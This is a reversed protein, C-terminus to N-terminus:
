DREVVRINSHMKTASLPEVAVKAAARASQEAAIRAERNAREAHKL